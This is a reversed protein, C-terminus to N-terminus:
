AQAASVSIRIKKEKYEKRFARLMRQIPSLKEGLRPFTLFPLARKEEKANFGHFLKEVGFAVQVGPVPLAVETEGALIGVRTANVGRKIAASQPGHALICAEARCHFGIPPIPIKELLASRTEGNSEIQGGLNAEIRVMGKGPATPRTPTAMLEKSSISVSKASIGSSRTEVEIVMLAVAGM